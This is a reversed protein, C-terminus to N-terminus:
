RDMKFPVTIRVTESPIFSDDRGLTVMVRRGRIPQNKIPSIRGPLARIEPSITTVTAEVKSGRKSKRQVYVRDGEQLETLYVEPLFGVVLDSRDSVLLVVSEGRRVVSGPECFIRSVIADSNARLTYSERQMLHRELGSTLISERAEVGQKVTESM